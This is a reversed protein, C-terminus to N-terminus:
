SLLYNFLDLYERGMRELSVDLNPDMVEKLGGTPDPRTVIKLGSARAELVANSCADYDYPAFFIDASRLIKAYEDRDTVDGWYKVYEGDFFDFNYEQLEPSFQGLLWLGADKHQRAFEVYWYWAIHWGKVEDRNHRSYIVVPDKRDRRVREDQNQSPFFVHTDVGNLIVRREVLRRAPNEEQFRIFAPKCQKDLYAGIFNEAWHSQYVIASAASAYKVMRSMGTGRNRSDRVANDVRLVIPKKRAQIDRFLEKDNLMTPGPIFVIDADMHTDVIDVGMRSMIMAFNHTFVFGGGSKKDKYESAIYIKM